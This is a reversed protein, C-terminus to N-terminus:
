RQRFRLSKNHKFETISSAPSPRAKPRKSFSLKEMAIVFKRLHKIYEPFTELNCHGGSQVWLPEYKEKAMEWLRKGHSLDVIEDKTGAKLSGTLKEYCRFSLEPSLPSGMFLLVMGKFIDFWFTLKVNYLVRIGSLIASHLVVARLRAERKSNPWRHHHHENPRRRDKKNHDKPMKEIATHTSIEQISSEKYVSLM